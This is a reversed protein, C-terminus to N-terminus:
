KTPTFASVEVTKISSNNDFAKLFESCTEKCEPFLSSYTTVDERAQEVTSKRYEQVYENDEFMYAQRDLNSLVNLVHQQYAKILNGVNDRKAFLNEGESANRITKDLIVVNSNWYENYREEFLSNKFKM